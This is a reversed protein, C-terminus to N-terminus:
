ETSLNLEGSTSSYLESVLKGSKGLVAASDMAEEKSRCVHM